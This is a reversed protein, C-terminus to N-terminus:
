RSPTRVVRDNTRGRITVREKMILQEASCNIMFDLASRRGFGQCLLALNATSTGGSSLSERQAVQTQAGHGM